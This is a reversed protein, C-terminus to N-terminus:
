KSLNAKELSLFRLKGASAFLATIMQQSFFATVGMRKKTSFKLSLSLVIWTYDFFPYLM